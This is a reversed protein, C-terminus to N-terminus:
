KQVLTRFERMNEAQTQGEPRKRAPPCIVQDEPTITVKVNAGQLEAKVYHGDWLGKGKPCDVRTGNIQLLIKSVALVEITLGDESYSERRNVLVTRQM